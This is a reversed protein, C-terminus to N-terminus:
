RQLQDTFILQRMTKCKMTNGYNIMDGFLLPPRAKARSYVSM